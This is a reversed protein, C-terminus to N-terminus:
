KSFELNRSDRWITKISNIDVPIAADLQVFPDNATTADLSYTAFLAGESIFQVTHVYFGQDGESPPLMPHHLAGRISAFGSLEKSPSVAKIPQGIENTPFKIAGKFIVNLSEPNQFNVPVLVAGTTAKQSFTNGSQQIFRATLTAPATTAIRVRTGVVFATQPKEFKVTLAKQFNEPNTSISLELGVIPDATFGKALISVPTIGGQEITQTVTRISAVGDSQALLLPSYALSLLAIIYALLKSLSNM